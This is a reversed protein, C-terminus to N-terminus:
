RRGTAPESGTYVDSAPPEDWAEERIGLVTSLKTRMVLSPKVEERAWARVSKEDCRLRRALSAATHKRLQERLLRSGETTAESPLLLQRTTM